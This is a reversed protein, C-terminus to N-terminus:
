HGLAESPTTTRFVSPGGDMQLAVYGVSQGSTLVPAGQPGIYAFAHCYQFNAQAIVYGSFGPTARLGWRSSGQSVAFLVTEGAKVNTTGPCTGTSATNTCQSPVAPDTANAPYYWFQVPGEQSTGARFGFRDTVSTAAGPTLSTNALAIGTDWNSGASPANTVFPFLLNCACRNVRFFDVFTGQNPKFRPVPLAGTTTSVTSSAIAANAWAAASDTSAQFPAFGGSVQTNKAVEPQNTAANYAYSITMPIALDELVSPDAYVVEYVAFGDTGLNNGFFVGAASGGDGRTSGIAPNIRVAVGTSNTTGAQFLPASTPITMTLGASLDRVTLFIRTGQTAIGAAAIGTSNALTGTQALTLGGLGGPNNVIGTLEAVTPNAWTAGGNSVFGSETNYTAGPINQNLLIGAKTFNTSAVNTAGGAYDLMSTTSNAGANISNASTEEFGRPKFSTPFGERFRISSLVGGGNYGGNAGNFTGVSICQTFSLSNNSNTGANLSVGAPLETTAPTQAPAPTSAGVAQLSTTGLGSQNVLPGTIGRQVSAVTQSPNNIAIAVAGNINVNMVIQQLLGSATAAPVNARVNTIRMYRHRSFQTPAAGGLGPANFPVGIFIISNQPNVGTGQRGQFVNPRGCGYTGTQNGATAADADCPADEPFPAVAVPPQLNSTGDYTADFLANAAPPTTAMIQCVGPGSTGNDRAGDAGCALMPVPHATTNPEDMILLAESFAGAATNTTNLLKSTINTSLTITVNVAPVIQRRPTETGPGSTCDLVVDGVLDAFSEERVIPPVGANATCLVQANATSSVGALLSALGLAYFLKRFDAM